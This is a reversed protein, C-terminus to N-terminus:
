PLGPFYQLFVNMFVELNVFNVFKKGGHVIGLICYTAVFSVCERAFRCSKVGVKAPM